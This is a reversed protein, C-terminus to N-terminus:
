TQRKTKPHDQWTTGRSIGHLWWTAVKASNQHIEILVTASYMDLVNVSFQQNTYIRGVVILVTFYINLGVRLGYTSLEFRETGVLLLLPKGSNFCYCVRERKHEHLWWTAVLVPNQVTYGFGGAVFFGLPDPQTKHPPTL